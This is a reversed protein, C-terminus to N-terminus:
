QGATTVTVTVPPSKEVVTIVRWQVTTTVRTTTVVQTDTVTRAPATVVHTVYTPVTLTSTGYTTETRVVTSAPTSKKRIVYVRKVVPARTTVPKAPDRVTVREDVTRVADAQTKTQEVGASASSLNDALLWGGVLLGGLGLVVIAAKEEFPVRERWWSGWSAPQRLRERM